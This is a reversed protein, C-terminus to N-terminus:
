YPISKLYTQHRARKEADSLGTKLAHEIVRSNHYLVVELVKRDPYFDNFGFNTSRVFSAVQEDVPRSEFTIVNSLPHPYDFPSWLRAMSGASHMRGVYGLAWSNSRGQASSCILVIAEESLRPPCDMHDLKVSWAVVESRSSDVAGGGLAQKVSEIVETWNERSPAGVDRWPKITTVVNTTAAFLPTAILLPSIFRLFKM